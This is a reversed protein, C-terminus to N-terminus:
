GFFYNRVVNIVVSVVNHNGSVDINANINSDGEKINNHNNGHHKNGHDQGHGGYGYKKKHAWDKVCQGYNGYGAKKCDHKSPKNNHPSAGAM